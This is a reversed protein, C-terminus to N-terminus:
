CQQGKNWLRSCLIDLSYILTLNPLCYINYMSTLYLNCTASVPDSGVCMNQCPPHMLPHLPLFFHTNLSTYILDVWLVDREWVCVWCSPHSCVGRGSQEWPHCDCCVSVVVRCVFALLRSSTPSVELGDLVDEDNVVSSDSRLFTSFAPPPSSTLVPYM